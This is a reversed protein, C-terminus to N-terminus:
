YELTGSLDGAKSTGAVSEYSPLPLPEILHEQDYHLKERARYAMLCIRAARPVFTRNIYSVLDKNSHPIHKLRSRDNFWEKMAAMLMNRVSDPNQPQIELGNGSLRRVTQVISDNVASINIDTLLLYSAREMDIPSGKRHHEIYLPDPVFSDTM